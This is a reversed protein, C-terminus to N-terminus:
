IIWFIISKERGFGVANMRGAEMSYTFSLTGNMGKIM